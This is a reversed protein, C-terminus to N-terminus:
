TLATEAAVAADKDVALVTAGETAFVRAIARGNGRGAGTLVVIRDAFRM